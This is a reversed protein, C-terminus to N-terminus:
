PREATRTTVGDSLRVLLRAPDIGPAAVRADGGRAFAIIEGSVGDRVLAIPHRAANWQLRVAGPGDTRVSVPPATVGAIGAPVESAVRRARGAPTSLEISRLSALPRDDLPVFIAFHRAQPDPGDAVRAGRFSVRFVEEGDGGLGRLVNPGDPSPPSPPAELELAPNLHVGERGIRGWLLLGRRALPPGAVRNSAAVAALPDDTRWDLIRGFTYDATWRPGCYSMYDRYSPDAVLDGTLIDFGPPGIAAHAHPFDPDPNGAGGCPAHPRGLNHGLEHVIIDPSEVSLASRFPNSPLGPVYALGGFAIGSFNKIIGHYYEDSAGEATRLAQLDSLLTSWGTTTSLDEATSFASRITPELTSIPIMRRTSALLHAVNGPHVDGITGNATAVIPVMIVRLPALSRVGLDIAGGGGPFDNDSEDLEPIEDDPDVTVAVALGPVVDEADLALNWTHSPDRLDPDTAIGATPPLLVERVLAVGQFLRVRVAPADERSENADLVVRLLGPRGEVADIVGGETQSGQNLHVARVAMNFVPVLGEAGFDVPELGASSARLGNPGPDPGLTWSDVRALGEADSSAPAGSVTGGGVRVEFDVVVGSVPNGHADAVFVTPPEPVPSRVVASQDTGDYAVLSAAPGSVATAHFTVAGALDSVSAALANEGVAMGLVWGGVAAVGDAGSSVVAGEISGEGQIITFTVAIGDVPNGFRDAVRVAPREQVPTAVQGTQQLTTVARLESPAGALAEARLTIPAVGAVSATVAQQGAREGLVWRVQARGRDDSRASDVSLSGGGESVAWRVLASPVPRDGADVVGVVLPSALSDAVVGKQDAGSVLALAAPQRPGTPDSGDCSLVALAAFVGFAFRRSLAARRPAAPRTPRGSRGAVRFPLEMLTFGPRGGPPKFGWSRPPLASM